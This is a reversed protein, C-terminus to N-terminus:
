AATEQGAGTGLHVTAMGAPDRSIDVPLGFTRQLHHGRLVQDGPGATVTGGQFLAFHTGHRAAIALDHTVFLITMREKENLESLFSLLAEETSLDLGNTPEDLVLLRPRRVLARALLARQRQGGSLSWYSAGARSALGVKDLAWQLREAQQCRTSPIGVLGLLVFERVTTPLTPNLDCRQPVFGLSGRGALAPALTLTGSTPRLMGLICRLLTTKGQGNPGLLFWFQGAAIALDVDQLIIRRGFAVSMGAARVLVETLDRTDTSPTTM